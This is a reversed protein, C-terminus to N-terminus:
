GSVIVVELSGSHWRYGVGRVTQLAVRAEALKHRLRAMHVDVTRDNVGAGNWVADLLQERSVVREPHEALHVLLEFERRTLEVVRGGVQVRHSLRDIVLDPAGGSWGGDTAPQVPSVVVAITTQAGRFRCSVMSRVTELLESIAVAAGGLENDPWAAQFTFGVAPLPSDVEANGSLDSITPSAAFPM